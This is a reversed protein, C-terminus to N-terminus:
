SPCSSLGTCFGLTYNGAKEKASGGAVELAEDSVEFALIEEETQEITTYNMVNIGKKRWGRRCDDAPSIRIAGRWLCILDDAACV